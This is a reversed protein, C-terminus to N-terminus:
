GGMREWAVAPRDPNRRDADADATKAAWPSLGGNSADWRRRRPCRRQERAYGVVQGAMDLGEARVTDTPPDPGWVCPNAEPWFQTTPTYGLAVSVKVVTMQHPSDPGRILSGVYVM